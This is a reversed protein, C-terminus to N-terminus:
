CISMDNRLTIDFTMTCGALYNEFRETFPEITATESGWIEANYLEGRRALEHIRTAIGIQTNLVDQENDNGVFWDTVEDKSIDVIDMFIISVNADIINGNLTLNNVMIHALPFLTQKMNDIDDLGGTTVTTTFPENLIADKLKNILYYYTTM